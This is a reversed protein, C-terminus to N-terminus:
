RVNKFNIEISKLSDFFKGFEEEEFTHMYVEIRESLNVKFPIKRELIDDPIIMSKKM